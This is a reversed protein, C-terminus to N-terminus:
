TLLQIQQSQQFQIQTLTKMLIRMEEGYGIGSEVQSTIPPKTAPLGKELFDRQSDNESPKVM